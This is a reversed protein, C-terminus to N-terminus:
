LLEDVEIRDSGAPLRVLTGDRGITFPGPYIGAVGDAFVDEMPGLLLPPVIHYLLLHGAGVDRATEAADEPSAHYDLIDTTIKALRERGAQRAARTLVAVLEPDLAEHVLLDVGQAARALNASKVTDGSIVLSRGAHDFRYGVAPRVPAHDVLFATIRVGGEDLVVEDRGEAPVPFPRAVGGAGSAPVVDEGHHAVRGARSLAYAENLGDVVRAVGTPGYVPVPKSHGGNAWRQMMVEGLGDIHDSHFHTLLVAEIRGQPLRTRSMVRSAGSGSDVVFLRDGAVVAVCPGSRKPDPLPSGAGCLLLHLGDPLDDLLSSAMNTAVVREMLRMTIPVRLAVGVALLLLVVVSVVLLFRKM